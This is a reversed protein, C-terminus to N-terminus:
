FIKRSQWFIMADDRLMPAHGTADAYQEYIPAADTLPTGAPLASVWLDLDLVADARWDMGGTGKPGVIVHGYGPMNFVVGYGATSYAFPITVHFKRQLLEVTQGNRELPVTVQPCGSACGEDCTWNGQGLGYIREKADGPTMKFDLAFFGPPTYPTGGNSPATHNRVWGM